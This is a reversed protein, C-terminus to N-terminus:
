NWQETRVPDALGSLNTSFKNEMKFKGKKMHLDHISLHWKELKTTM